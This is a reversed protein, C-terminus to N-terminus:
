IRLKIVRNRKYLKKFSRVMNFILFLGMLVLQLVILVGATEVLFTEFAKILPVCKVFDTCSLFLIQFEIIQLIRRTWCINIIDYSIRLEQAYEFM